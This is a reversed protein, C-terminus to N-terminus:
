FFRHESAHELTLTIIKGEKDVEAYLNESVEITEVVDRDSFEILMTDTDEFYKIKM